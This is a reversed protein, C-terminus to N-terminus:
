EDMKVYFQIDFLKKVCAYEGVGRKVSSLMDTRM